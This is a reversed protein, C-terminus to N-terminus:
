GFRWAGCTSVYTLLQRRPAGEWFAEEKFKRRAMMLLIIVHLEKEHVKVIDVSM